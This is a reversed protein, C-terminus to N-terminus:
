ENLLKMAFQRRELHSMKQWKDKLLSWTIKEFYLDVAQQAEFGTIPNREQVSKKLDTLQAKNSM